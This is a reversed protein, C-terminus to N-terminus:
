GAEGEDSPDGDGDAAEGRVLELRKEVEGLGKRVRRRRLKGAVGSLRVLLDLLERELDEDNMLYVEGWWGVRDILRNLTDSSGSLNRPPAHPVTFARAEHGTV